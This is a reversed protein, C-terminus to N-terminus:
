NALKDFGLIEIMLDDHKLKMHLLRKASTRHGLKSGEDAAKDKSRQLRKMSPYCIFKAAAAVISDREQKPPDSRVTTSGSAEQQAPEQSASQHAANARQQLTRMRAIREFHLDHCSSLKHQVQREQLKDARACAERDNVDHLRMNMYPQHVNAKSNTASCPTVGGRVCARCSYKM